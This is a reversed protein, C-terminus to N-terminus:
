ASPGRRELARDALDAELPRTLRRRRRAAARRRGGGARRSAAGARAALARLRPPSPMMPARRRGRLRVAAAPLRAQLVLLTLAAVWAADPSRADAGAAHRDPRRPVGDRVRRARVLLARLRRARRLLLLPRSPALRQLGAAVLLDTGFARLVLSFTTAAVLLAFLLGTLAMADALVARLLPRDLRRTGRGLRRAAVAAARRRRSPTSGASRSRASCARRHRGRSRPTAELRRARSAAAAPSRARDGRGRWAAIALAARARAPRARLAARVVDQTNVIRVARQDVNVAETHARMM